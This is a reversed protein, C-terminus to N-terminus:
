ETSRKISRRSPTGGADVLTRVKAVFVFTNWAAGAAARGRWMWPRSRSSGGSRGSRHNGARGLLSGPEIWGYETEPETAQAGLLVIRGPNEDVFAAAQAVQEMFLHEEVVLHDSPMFVLTADPARAAILAHPLVGVATGRDQPQLLVRPGGHPITAALHSAHAELSVVVTHDIPVRQAARDLTQQLLSRSGTLTV